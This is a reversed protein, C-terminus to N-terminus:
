SNLWQESINENTQEFEKQVGEFFNLIINFNNTKIIM